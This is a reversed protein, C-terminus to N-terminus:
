YPNLHRDGGLKPRHGFITLPVKGCVYLYCQTSVSGSLLQLCRSSTGPEPGPHQRSGAESEISLVGCLVIDGFQSSNSAIFLWLHSLVYFQKNSEPTMNQFSELRFWREFAVVGRSGVWGPHGWTKNLTLMIHM